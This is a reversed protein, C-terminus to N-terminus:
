TTGNKGNGAKETAPVIHKRLQKLFEDLNLDKGKALLPLRKAWYFDKARGELWFQLTEPHDEEPTKALNFHSKVERIWSDITTGDENDGKGQFPIHNQSETDLTAKDSAQHKVEGNKWQKKHHKQEKTKLPQKRRPRERRPQQKSKPHKQVRTQGHSDRSGQPRSFPVPRTREQQEDINLHKFIDELFRQPGENLSLPIPNFTDKNNTESTSHNEDQRTSRFTKNAAKSEYDTHRENNTINRISTGKSSSQLEALNDSPSTGINPQKLYTKSSTEQDDLWELQIEYQEVNHERHENEKNDEIVKQEDRVTQTKSDVDEILDNIHGFSNRRNRLFHNIASHSIKKPNRQEV